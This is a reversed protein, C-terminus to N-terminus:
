ELLTKTSLSPHTDDPVHAGNLIQYELYRCDKRLQEVTNCMGTIIENQDKQRLSLEHIWKQFKNEQLVLLKNFQVRLQLQRQLFNPSWEVTKENAESDSVIVDEVSDIVDLLNTELLNYQLQYCEDIFKIKNNVMTIGTHFGNKGKVFFCTEIMYQMLLNKYQRKMHYYKKPELIDCKNIIPVLNVKTYINKMILVDLANVDPEMVYFCWHIRNDKIQKRYLQKRQLEYQEQQREIYNVIPNWCYENNLNNGLSIEILNITVDLHPFVLVISYKEFLSLNKNNTDLPIIRVLHKSLKDINFFRQLFTTKGTGNQGCCMVNINMGNKTERLFKQQPLSNLQLNKTDDVFDDEVENEEVKRKRKRENSESKDLEEEFFIGKNLKEENIIQIFTEFEIPEEFSELESSM